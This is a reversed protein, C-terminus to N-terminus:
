GPNSDSGIRVDHLLPEGGYWSVDLSALSPASKEVMKIINEVVGSSMRGSKTAEYCYECAMNCALTPAITLGLASRDYRSCNHRFRLGQREDHDKKCTFNGYAMLKRNQLKIEALM